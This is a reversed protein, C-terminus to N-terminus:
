IYVNVVLLHKYNSAPGIGLESELIIQACCCSGNCTEDCCRSIKYTSKFALVSPHLAELYIGEFKVHIHKVHVLKNHQNPIAYLM